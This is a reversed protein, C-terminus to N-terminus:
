TLVLLNNVPGVLSIAIAVAWLGKRSWVPALRIVLVIFAVGAMKVALLMALNGVIPAMLPNSETHGAAIGIRTTWVDALHLLVLIPIM